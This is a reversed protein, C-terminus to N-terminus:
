GLCVKEISILPAYLNKSLITKFIHKQTRLTLTLKKREIFISFPYIFYSTFLKRM